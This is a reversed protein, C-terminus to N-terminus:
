GAVSGGRVFPLKVVSAKRVQGEAPINVVTGTPIFPKKVYGLCIAANSLVPSVTSSTVGGIQNSNDDFIHAGAIPLADDAMKLGVLQRAVQGRAHMRAVIEQGLYCGKTLSVARDMQGTEAPLVSDDSDIGFLPRGGEIRTANFAAWGAPRLPRRGIETSPGFRTILEMWIQRAADSSILLHYGPVAAPDDRWVTVDHGLLRTTASGLVPLDPLDAGATRLVEMAGPGHLAIQHQSGVRDNLKVQESFLYKEFADRITPILRADL